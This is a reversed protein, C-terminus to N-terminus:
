GQKIKQKYSFMATGVVLIAIFLLLPAIGTELFKIACSVVFLTCTAFAALSIMFEKNTGHTRKLLQYYAFASITYGIVIGLTATLQLPVISGQNFLLFMMCILSEALVAIWPMHHQNLQIITSAAFTHNNEALTYLNWPNSFLIGYAGGLASSGIAFSLLLSTKNAILESSFLKHAIVPFIGEYGAITALAAHSNMYICGQFIGYLIMITGFSYYVAKPGNVSPNEINRGLACATEFGALCYLVLPISMPMGTWIFQDATITSTDFLLIGAVIAFLIPISKSTLFFSQIIIGTKMNQLNLATFIALVSLSIIIPNTTKLSPILQQFITTAVTLMVCSSALKGFFYSWCSLFGLYPSYSKGFAYLAGTPFKGALKGIVAILPLMCLGIIPYLLFGAAGARASLNYTNIFIGTGIMVNLNIFIASLLSMKKSSSM